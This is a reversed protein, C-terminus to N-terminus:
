VTQISAHARCNEGMFCRRRNAKAEKEMSRRHEIGLLWGGGWGGDGWKTFSLFRKTKLVVKKYFNLVNIKYVTSPM